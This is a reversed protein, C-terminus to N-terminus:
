DKTTIRTSSVLAPRSLAGHKILMLKILLDKNILIKKMQM